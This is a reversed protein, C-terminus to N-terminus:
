ESVHHHGLSAEKGELHSFHSWEVIGNWWEMGTSCEVLEIGGTFESHLGSHPIIKLTIINM